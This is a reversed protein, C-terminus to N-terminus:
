SEKNNSSFEYTMSVNLFPSIGANYGILFLNHFGFILANNPHNKLTKGIEIAYAVHLYWNGSIEPESVNLSNDVYYVEPLFSKSLGVMGGLSRFRNKKGHRRNQIGYSNHVFVHSFPDYHFSLQALLLRNMPVKDATEKNLHILKRRNYSKLVYKVNATAGPNAFHNHWYGVGYRISTEEHQGQLQIGSFVFCVVLVLTFRM